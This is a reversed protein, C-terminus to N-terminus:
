LALGIQAIRSQWQKRENRLYKALLILEETILTDLTQRKGHKIRPIEVRKEFLKNLGDAALADAEYGCLHVRKGMKLRMLFDTVVVFDKKCLKQEHEILYDDILYRYVDQNDCVLSPKGHQVSHLFGLYPEIKTKVM